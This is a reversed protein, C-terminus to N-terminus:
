NRIDKVYQCFINVSTFLLFNSTQEDLIHLEVKTSVHNQENEEAARFFNDWSTTKTTATTLLLMPPPLCLYKVCRLRRLSSVTGNRRNYCCTSHQLRRRMYYHTTRKVTLPTNHLTSQNAAAHSDSVRSSSRLTDNM